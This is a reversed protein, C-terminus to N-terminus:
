RKAQNEETAPVATTTMAADATIMAATTMIINTGAPVINMMAITSMTDTNTSM